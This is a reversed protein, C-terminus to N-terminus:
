SQAGTTTTQQPWARMDWAVLHLALTRGSKPFFMAFAQCLDEVTKIRTDPDIINRAATLNACASELLEAAVAPKRENLATMRNRLKTAAATLERLVAEAPAGTTILALASM